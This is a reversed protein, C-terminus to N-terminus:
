DFLLSIAVCKQFKKSILFPPPRWRSNQYIRMEITVNANKTLNEIIGVVKTCIPKYYLFLLVNELNLVTAAAM